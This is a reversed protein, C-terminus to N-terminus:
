VLLELKKILLDMGYINNCYDLLDVIVSDDLLKNKIQVDKLIKELYNITVYFSEFTNFDFYNNENIEPNDNAEIKNFINFMKEEFKQSNNETYLQNFDNISCNFKIIM